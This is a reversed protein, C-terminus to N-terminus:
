ARQVMQMKSNRWEFVQKLRDFDPAPDEGLLDLLITYYHSCEPCLIDDRKAPFRRCAECTLEVLTVGFSSNLNAPFTITTSARVLFSAISINM